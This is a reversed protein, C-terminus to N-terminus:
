PAAERSLNRRESLAEALVAPNTYEISAGTPVGRALRSVAIPRGLHQELYEAVVLAAGDGELDPNTGLVIEQVEGSKVRALLGRLRMEEGRGARTGDLSTSSGLLVHYLGRWGAKEMSELDKPQEVVLIRTRDREPDTCIACPDRDSLHFCTGCPRVDKVAREISRALRLSEEPGGRILFYALREATRPGVGPLRELESVLEEMAPPYAMPGLSSRDLITSDTGPLGGAIAGTPAFGSGFPPSGAGQDGSPRQPDPDPFEEGAVFWDDVRGYGEM